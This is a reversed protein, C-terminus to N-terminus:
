GCAHGSEAWLPLPGSQAVLEEMKLALDTQLWEVICELFHRVPPAGTAAGRAYAKVVRSVYRSEGDSLGRYESAEQQESLNM